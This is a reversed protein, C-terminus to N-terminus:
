ARLKHGPNSGIIDVSKDEVLSRGITCVFIMSERLVLRGLINLM